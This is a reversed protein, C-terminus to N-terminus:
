EEGKGVRGLVDVWAGEGVPRRVECLGDGERAWEMLQEETGWEGMGMLGVPVGSGEEYGMPRSVAPCGTWNAVFVYEMSRLSTDGDSVGRGGIKVDGPDAVKWGAMPVTPTAVILGPHQQWLFALHRMLMDRLRQAALFDQATAHSGAVNLLLQNPYTLQAIQAPTLTSRIESLITLAHAKQNQPLLPLTIPVIKYNHATKYHSIAADFMARVNADARDLWDTYIGLVKPHSKQPPRLDPTNHSLASPFLASKRDGADPQAMIRYALALDDLSGAIPGYVGVSGADPTPRCSIRGHSPKLGYVGCFAAPLRISGGGDVGLAIPCLGAAVAYASGGSSGGTYYNANHPNPPTGYNPNNNTTDLGMEHQNTKGVVIAGAEELKQVCWSAHEASKPLELKSGACRGYGAVDAEDKIAIPVGDIPSLPKGKAHRDTSAQAAKRILDVKSDLFAVSHKGPPHDDRRILSLFSEVIDNPTTKGNKYLEQYDACSYHLQRVTESRPAPRESVFANNEDAGSSRPVVTPDHRVDYSEIEAIEKLKDFKNLKWLISQM